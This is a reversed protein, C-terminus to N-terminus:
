FYNNGQNNHDCVYKGKNKHMENSKRDMLKKARKEDSDEAMEEESRIRKHSINEITKNVKLHSEILPKEEYEDELEIVEIEKDNTRQDKSPHTTKYNNRFVNEFGKVECKFVQSPSVRRTELQNDIKMIQDNQQISIYNLENNEETKDSIQINKPILSENSNNEIKIRQYIYKSFYRFTKTKSHVEKQHRRLDYSFRGRFQCGGWGCLNKNTHKNKHNVLTKRTKFIASCVRCQFLTLSSIKGAELQNDMKFIQHNQQVSIYNMENNEQTKDRIQIKQPILCENSNNEIKIRKNSDKFYYNFTKTKSHVNTRHRRLHYSSSGRFQCGGWACAFKNTHKIKHKVLSNRTKFIASCVECKFGLKSYNQIQTIFRNGSMQELSSNNDKRRDINPNIIRHVAKMHRKLKYLEGGRFGCGGVKCLYKNSHRNKHKRLSDRTKLNASCIDCIFIDEPTQNIIRDTTRHTEALNKLEENREDITQELHSDKETIDNCEIWEEEEQLEQKCEKIAEISNQSENSVEESDDVSQIDTKEIKSSLTENLHHGTRANFEINKESKVKIETNILNISIDELEEINPKKEIMLNNIFCKNEEGIDEIKIETEIPKREPIEESTDDRENNQIQRETLESEVTEQSESCNQGVNQDRSENLYYDTLRKLTVSFKEETLRNFSKIDKILDLVEKSAITENFQIVFEFIKQYNNTLFKYKNLDTKLCNNEERLEHIVDFLQGRSLDHLERSLNM